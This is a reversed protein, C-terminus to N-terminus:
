KKKCLICHNIIVLVIIVIVVIMVMARTNFMTIHLFVHRLPLLMIVYKFCQMVRYHKICFVQLLFKRM